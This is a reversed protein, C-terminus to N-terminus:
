SEKIDVDIDHKALNDVHKSVSHIGGLAALALALESGSLVPIQTGMVTFGGILFKVMIIIFGVSFVTQPDKIM